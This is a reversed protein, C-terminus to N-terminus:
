RAMIVQEDPVREPLWARRVVVGVSKTFEGPQPDHM